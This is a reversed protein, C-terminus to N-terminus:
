MRLSRTICPNIDQDLGKASTKALKPVNFSLVNNKFVSERLPLQIPERIEHGLQDTKFNVDDKRYIGRSGARGFVDSLRDGDHKRPNGIRQVKDSAERPRTSVNRAQGSDGSIQTSFPQLHELLRNGADRSHANEQM